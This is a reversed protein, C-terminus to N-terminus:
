VCGADEAAERLGSQVVNVDGLWFGGFGGEALIRRQGRQRALVRVPWDNDRVAGQVGRLDGLARNALFGAEDGEALARQRVHVPRAPHAFLTGELVEVRLYQLREFPQLLITGPAENEM